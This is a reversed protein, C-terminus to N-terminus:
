SHTEIEKDTKLKNINMNFQPPKQKKQMKKM